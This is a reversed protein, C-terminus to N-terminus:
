GGETRIVKLTAPLVTYKDHPLSDTIFLDIQSFPAVKVSATREWKSHDAVLIRQRSNALIAQSIEAERPDFDMLGDASSLSGTGIVGFDARFDNFFKVTHHGVLDLDYHRLSGRSVIVEIGPNGSLASVVGLNNTLVQLRNHASLERAVFEMSSGVGLFVSSNESIHDALTAAMAQKAFPNLARRSMVSVNIMSSPLSVGGYRRRLLGLECLRNIDKRITQSTVRFQRAIDEVEVHDDRRVQELILTQRKTLKM